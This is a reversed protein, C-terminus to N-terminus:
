NLESSNNSSNSSNAYNSNMVLSVSKKHAPFQYSSSPIEHSINRRHQNYKPPVPPPQDSCDDFVQVKENDLQSSILDVYNQAVRNGNELAMAFFELATIDDKQVGYGNFYMIGVQYQADVNGRDAAKLFWAMAKKFDQRTGNGDYYM